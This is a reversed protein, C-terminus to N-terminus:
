GGDIGAGWQRLGCHACADPALPAGGTFDNGCRPCTMAARLRGKALFLVLGGVAVVTLLDRLLVVPPDGSLTFCLLVGILGIAELLVLAGVRRQARSWREWHPRYPDDPPLAHLGRLAPMSAPTAEPGPAWLPLGCKRCPRGRVFAFWSRCRPCRARHHLWGLWGIAGLVGPYMALIALVREGAALWVGTGIVFALVPVAAFLSRSASAARQWHPYYADGATLGQEELFGM